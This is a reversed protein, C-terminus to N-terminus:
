DNISQGDPLIAFDTYATGFTNNIAVLVSEITPACTTFKKTDGFCSKIKETTGDARKVTETKYHYNRITTYTRGIGQAALTKLLQANTTTSTCIELLYEKNRTKIKGFLRYNKLNSNAAMEPLFNCGRREVTLTRTRKTM